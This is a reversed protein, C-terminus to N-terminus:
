ERYASRSNKVRRQGVIVKEQLGTAGQSTLSAARKDVIDQLGNGVGGVGVSRPAFEVSVTSVQSTSGQSEVSSLPKDACGCGRARCRKSYGSSNLAVPETAVMWQSKKHKKQHPNSSAVSDLGSNKLAAAAGARGGRAAGM